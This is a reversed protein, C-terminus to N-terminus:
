PCGTCCAACAAEDVFALKEIPVGGFTTGQMDVNKKHSARASPVLASNHKDATDSAGHRCCKLAWLVVCLLVMFGNVYLTVGQM